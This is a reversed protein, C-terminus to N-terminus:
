HVFTSGAAGGSTAPSNPQPTIAPRPAAIFVPPMRRPCLMATIPQPPTPQAAIAPARSTPAAVIMPISMSSRLSVVAKEIRAAM